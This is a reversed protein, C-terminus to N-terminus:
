SRVGVTIRRIGSEAEVPFLGSIGAEVWLLILEDIKGDCDVFINRIGFQKLFDMSRVTYPMFFESLMQRLIMPGNKYAVEELIM